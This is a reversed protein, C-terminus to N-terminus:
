DHSNDKLAARRLRRYDGLRPVRRGVDETTQPAYDDPRDDFVSSSLYWTFPGTAEKLEDFQAYAEDREDCAMTLAEDLVTKVGELKALAERLRGIEEQDQAHLRLVTQMDSVYQPPPALKDHAYAALDAEHRARIEGVAEDAVPSLAARLAARLVPIADRMTELYSQADIYTRDEFEELSYGICKELRDLIEGVVDDTVPAVRARREKLERAMSAAHNCALTILQANAAGTTDYDIRVDMDRDVIYYPGEAEDNPHEARIHCGLIYWPGPTAKGAAEIIEDLEANTPNTM